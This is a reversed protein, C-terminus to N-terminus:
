KLMLVIWFAYFFYLILMLKGGVAVLEYSILSLIKAEKKSKKPIKPLVECLYVIAIVLLLFFPSRSSKDLIKPLLHPPSGGRFSIKM